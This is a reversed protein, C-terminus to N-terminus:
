NVYVYVIGHTPLVPKLYAMLQGYTLTPPTFVFIVPLGPGKEDLLKRLSEPGTIDQDVAMKTLDYDTAKM